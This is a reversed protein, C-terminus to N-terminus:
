CHIMVKNRERQGMIEMAKHIDKLAFRHSIIKEPDVLGREMLRIANQM